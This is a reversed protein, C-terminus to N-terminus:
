YLIDAKLDKNSLELMKAMDANTDENDKGM